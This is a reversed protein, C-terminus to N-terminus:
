GLSRKLIERARELESQMDAPLDRKDFPGTELAQDIISLWDRLATPDSRHDWSPRQNHEDSQL